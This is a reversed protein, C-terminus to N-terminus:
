DINVVTWGTPIYNTGYTEPLASPKYFTGSSSVGNVWGGSNSWTTFKVHIENLKSCGKFMQNRYPQFSTLALSAKQLSACNMFMEGCVANGGSYYNTFEMDSENLETIGTNRFMTMYCDRAANSSKLIPMKTIGVCNDFMGRYCDQALPINPFDPISSIKKCWSFAFYFSRYNVSTFNMKPFNTAFKCGNFTLYFSNQGIAQATMDPLMTLAECGNFLYYFGYNPVSNSYNLMSMMDGYCALNGTTTYKVYSSNSTSLANATNQFQVLDGTNTLTLTTGATYASWEGNKSTRYQLGSVIPSGTANLTVTSGAQRAKFTLPPLAENVSIGLRNFKNPIKM